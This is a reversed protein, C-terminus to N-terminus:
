YVPTVEQPGEFKRKLKVSVLEIDILSSFSLRCGEDHLEDGRDKGKEGEERGGGRGRICLDAVVFGRGDDVGDEAEAVFEAVAQGDGARVPPGLIAHCALAVELHLGLDADVRRAVRRLPDRLLVAEALEHLHAHIAIRHPIPLCPPPPIPTLIPPDGMRVLRLIKSLYQTTLRAAHGHSPHTCLNM